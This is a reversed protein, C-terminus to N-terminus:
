ALLYSQLPTVFALDMNKIKRLRADLTKAVLPTKRSTNYSITKEGYYEGYLRELARVKVCIALLVVGMCSSKEVRRKDM